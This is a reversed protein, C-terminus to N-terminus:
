IVSNKRLIYRHTYKLTTAGVLKMGNESVTSNYDEIKARLEEESLAKPGREEEVEKQQFM